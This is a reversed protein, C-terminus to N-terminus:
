RGSVTMEAVRLTPAAVSGRRVVDRGIRDISALMALFDGAVTVEQVPHVVEGQEVWLGNAGRSYEGSVTNLGAGLGRTLVLARPASRLIEEPDDPGAEVSLNFAGAHPMSDFTRRANATPAVGAKRAAYTDYLFTKLHGRDVLRKRSTPLGEGDFHTSASGRRLLPDDIVSLGAAAIRQGLKDRLFSAKKTVMDGNLAGLMGSLLGAAMQPEFIVPVVQTAVPRAGLMRAARHGATHGVHEVPDLDELHTQADYWFETQLQGDAEAVPTCWLSIDTGTLDHQGGTSTLLVQESVSTAM